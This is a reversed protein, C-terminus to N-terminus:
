PRQAIAGSAGTPLRPDAIDGATRLALIPRREAARDLKPDGLEAGRHDRRVDAAARAVSARVHLEVVASQALVRDLIDAGQEVPDRRLRVEVFAADGDDAAAVAAVHHESGRHVVTVPERGGGLDDADAIEDREELIGLSVTSIQAPRFVAVLAIRLHSGEELADARAIMGVP